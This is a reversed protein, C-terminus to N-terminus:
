SRLQELRKGRVWESLALNAAETKTKANTFRMLDLFIGDDLLFGFLWYLSNFFLKVWSASKRSATRCDERYASVTPRSAM